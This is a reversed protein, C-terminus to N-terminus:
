KFAYRGSCESTLNRLRIETLLTFTKEMVSDSGHCIATLRNRIESKLEDSFDDIRCITSFIKCEISVGNIM